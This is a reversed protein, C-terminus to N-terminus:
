EPKDWSMQRAAAPKPLFELFSWEQKLADYDCDRLGLSWQEVAHSKSSPADDYEENLGEAGSAGKILTLCLELPTYKIQVKKGTGNPTDDLKKLQWAQAGITLITLQFCVM